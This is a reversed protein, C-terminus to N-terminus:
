EGASLRAELGRISREVVPVVPDSTPGRGEAVLEARRRAVYAKLYAVEKRLEEPTENFGAKREAEVKAAQEMVHDPIDVTRDQCAYFIHKGDAYEGFAIHAERRAQFCAELTRHESQVATQTCAPSTHDMTPCFLMFFTFAPITVSM